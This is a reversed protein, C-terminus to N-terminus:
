ARERQMRVLSIAPLKINHCVNKSRGVILAALAIKKHYYNSFEDRQKYQAANLDDCLEISLQTEHFEHALM